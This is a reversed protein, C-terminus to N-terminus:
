VHLFVEMGVEVRGEFILSRSKAQKLSLILFLYGGWGLFFISSKTIESTKSEFCFNCM